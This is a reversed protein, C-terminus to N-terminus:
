IINYLTMITNHGTKYGRQTKKKIKYINNEGRICSLENKASQIPCIEKWETWGILCYNGETNVM